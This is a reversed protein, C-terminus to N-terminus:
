NRHATRLEGSLLQNSAGGLMPRLQQGENQVAVPGSGLVDNSLGIRSGGAVPDESM